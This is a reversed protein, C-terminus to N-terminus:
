NWSVFALEVWILTNLGLLLLINPIIKNKFLCLLPKMGKVLIKNSSSILYLIIKLKLNLKRLVSSSEVISKVKRM